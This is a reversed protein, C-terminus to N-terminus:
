YIKNKKEKGDQQYGNQISTLRNGLYKGSSVWPLPNGNLLVPAPNEEIQKDSFIIGKTKSKNPNVDTSFSIKHDKAYQEAINLM